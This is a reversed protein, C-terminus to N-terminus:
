SATVVGGTAGTSGCVSWRRAGNARRSTSPILANAKVFSDLATVFDGKDFAAIGKDYAERATARDAKTPGKGEAVQAHAITPTGTVVLSWVALSAALGVHRGISM